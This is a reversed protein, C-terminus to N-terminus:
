SSGRVTTAFAAAMIKQVNDDGISDALGSWQAASYLMDVADVIGIGGRGVRDALECARIAFLEIQAAHPAISSAAITTSPAIM